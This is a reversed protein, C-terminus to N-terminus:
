FLHFGVNVQVKVEMEGPAINQSSENGGADMSAKMEMARFVPQFDGGSLESISIAKGVEQGLAGALDEAKQKAELVAKKRAAARHEEIESSDFEVGQIGNLGRELLGSIVEEYRDLDELEISIAQSAVYTYSKDNYNYRKNLNVYDTKVHKRPIGEEELYSLIREATQDNQKKVEAAAMGEHEIRSRILVQDPVVKVVGEGSVYVGPRASEEQAGLGLSIMLILLSILRKM